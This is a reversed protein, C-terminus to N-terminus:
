EKEKVNKLFGISSKQGKKLKDLELECSSDEIEPAIQAHLHMDGNPSNLILFESDDLRLLSAKTRSDLYLTEILRLRRHKSSQTGLNVPGIRKALLALAGLVILLGACAVVWRFLNIEDM